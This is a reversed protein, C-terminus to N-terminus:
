NILQKKHGIHRLEFDKLSFEPDHTKMHDEQIKNCSNWAEEGSLGSDVSVLEQWGCSCFLRVAAKKSNM